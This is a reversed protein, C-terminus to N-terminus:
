VMKKPDSQFLERVADRHTPQIELRPNATDLILATLAVDTRVNKERTRGASTGLNPPTRRPYCHSEVCGVVLVNKRCRCASKRCHYSFPQDAGRRESWRIHSM